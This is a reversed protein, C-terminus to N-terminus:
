GVVPFSDAEAQKRKKVLTLYNAVFTANHELFAIVRKAYDHWCDCDPVCERDGCYIFGVSHPLDTANADKDLRELEGPEFDWGGDSNYFAKGCHCMRYCSGFGADFAEEFLDLNKSM